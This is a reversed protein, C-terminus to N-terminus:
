LSWTFTLVADYCGSRTGETSDPLRDPPEYRITALALFGDTGLLAAAESIIAGFRNHARLDVDIAKDGALRPEKWVMLAVVTCTTRVTGLGIPEIQGPQIQTFLRPAANPDEDVNHRVDGAGCVEAWTPCALLLDSVAKTALSLLNAATASM